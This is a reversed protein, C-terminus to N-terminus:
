LQRANLEHKNYKIIKIKGGTYPAICKLIDYLSFKLHLPNISKGILMINLTTVCFKYWSM